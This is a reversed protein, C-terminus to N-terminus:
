QNTKTATTKHSEDVFEKILQVYREMDLAVTEPTFEAMVQEVQSVVQENEKDLMVLQGSWLAHYAFSEFVSTELQELNEREEDIYEPDFLSESFRPTEPPLVSVAEDMDSVDIDVQPMEALGFITM